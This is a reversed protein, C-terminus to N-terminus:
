PSSEPTRHTEQHRLAIDRIGRLSADRAAIWRCPRGARALAREYVPRLRDACVLLIEGGDDAFLGTMATVEGGILVGSLYSEVQDPALGAYLGRARTTFLHHLLGGAKEAQALGADFADTSFAADRQAPLGLVSHKLMVEYVEGTMSTAFDVLAGGEARAWKSHTGPLCLLADSRGTLALAGVIQAEEGRMVDVDGAPTELRVGPVIFVGPAEDVAVVQAALSDLTAPLPPQPATQWGQPAGVMGAMYVPPPTPGGRWPALREACYAAFRDRTLARMGLGDAIEDRVRGDAEVLWARFATTGWDVIVVPASM